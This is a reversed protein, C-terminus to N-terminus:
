GDIKVLAGGAVDEDTEGDDGGHEFGEGELAHEEEPELVVLAAERLGGDVCVRESDLGYGDHRLDNCARVDVVRVVAEGGNKEGCRHLHNCGTQQQYAVHGVRSDEDRM